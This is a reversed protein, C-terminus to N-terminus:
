IVENSLSIRHDTTAAIIYYYYYYIIYVSSYSSYKRQQCSSESSSYCLYIVCNILIMARNEVHIGRTSTYYNNNNNNNNNYTICWSGWADNAIDIPNHTKSENERPFINM